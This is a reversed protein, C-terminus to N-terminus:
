FLCNCVLGVGEGTVGSGTESLAGQRGCRIQGDLVDVAIEDPGVCEEDRSLSGNARYVDLALPHAIRRLASWLVAGPMADILTDREVDFKVPVLACYTIYLPSQCPTNCKMQPCTPFALASTYSSLKAVAPEPKFM